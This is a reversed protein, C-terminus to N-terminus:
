SKMCISYFIRRVQIKITDIRKNLQRIRTRAARQKALSVRAEFAYKEKRKSCKQMHKQLRSEVQKSDKLEREASVFDAHCSNIEMIIKEHSGSAFELKQNCASLSAKITELLTQYYNVWALRNDLAQTRLELARHVSPILSAVQEELAFLAQRTLQAQKGFASSESYCKEAREKFVITGSIREVFQLLDASTKNAITTCNQKVFIRDSNKVDIGIKLLRSHLQNIDLTQSLM